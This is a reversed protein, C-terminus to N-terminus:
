LWSPLGAVRGVQPAIDVQEVEGGASLAEFKEQLLREAKRRGKGEPLRRWLFLYSQGQEDAYPVRYFDLAYPAGAGLDRAKRQKWKGLRNVLKARDDEFVLSPKAFTPEYGQQLFAIVKVPQDHGPSRLKEESGPERERMAVEPTVFGHQDFVFLDSEFGTAGITSLVVSDGPESISALARGRIAWRIARWRMSEWQEYETAFDSVRRRFHCTELVSRPVLHVNWGPLMGLVVCSVGLTVGALRARRGAAWLDQMVWTLLLANFPLAPVLFRGFTMFDGSVLTAFCACAVPMLAVPLAYARRERRAAVFIGPLLVLMSLSTLYQVAVYQAGRLLREGSFAVKSHVTTAFAHGYYQYKWLFWSGYGVALIAGYVLLPRALAQGRARRSLLTLPVLALMWYVGEVRSLAVLVALVGAAVADIGAPRLILREFTAFFLLAFTMTELGSTSWVAFQAAYGLAATALCAVPLEAGFRVRALRFVFYLLLSGSLFAVLPLWLEIALGLKEVVAGIAVMLFNSFGEEPAHDGLNYRLGHGNGWNRSFRFSIYADDSVFWFRRVLAAYPLWVLLFACHDRWRTESAPSPNM